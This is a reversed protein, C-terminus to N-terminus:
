PLARAPSEGRRGRRRRALVLVRLALGPRTSRPPLRSPAAVPESTLQRTM